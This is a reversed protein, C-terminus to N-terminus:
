EQELARAAAEADLRVSAPQLGEVSAELRVPGPEKGGTRLIVQCKGNFLHRQWNGDTCRDPEHSAPDGNGVGVISANGSVSFHVLEGADPVELGDKDVVSVNVVAADVGEARLVISVPRGTTQVSARLERGKKFAIAELKGPAYDVVWELHGNRPMNKKGLSRGNLFLEVNDANTNVWVVVPQGEKGKWNWHPAIHLVDKDTWWSQYYYYINKPFGCMDMIGFHSNIDPWSYPTPEGRYDFGSWVFGGMLWPREAAMTWWKEATSAWSPYTSDYDPVYGREKDAAYMGRSTVTSGVETGIFPQGPHERHYKDLEGLNYNSGRVPLVENVGHYISGSSVAATCLRTPDLQAALLVQNQAIRKGIDTTQEMFEENGLSWMFVSAHNRDRLILKRFEDEYEAGSNLLRTEDLVLLGLSDCADLEEPTPPNAGTRYANVGAEKLLRTRYYQLYDPLAAGVGAHDQHCCVGQIKLPRGNLFLGKDPSMSITRVGFLIKVSDIVAGGSKLLVVARYLYPDDPNWWRPHPLSITQRTTQKGDVSVEVPIPKAKALINGERDTLYSYVMVRAPRLGKNDLTADIHAWAGAASAETHVFIGGEPEIHLNSYINLWAHRYIGAGEYFWGEYQSADARVVIVNKENFHLFDTIDFSVGMYGSLNSGLYYGNIWVKSDRYIGDFGIVFRRGSDARDPTFTKRYWGISNEPFLPGVPKFGHAELDNDPKDVFPLEVVWDHPLRVSPWTSDNFGPSACTKGADGSKSFINALGYDFDQAPDRANGLHFKWGDDFNLRRRVVPRETSEPYVRILVVGHGAVTASYGDALWGIDKRLWLDRAKQKGTLGIDAWHVTMVATSDGRNLLGITKSGDAMQKVWIELDGAPGHRVPTNGLIDQDVDIVEPNTLIKLASPRIHRVDASVFLPASLLSWLSMQSQYETDNCGKAGLDNASAGKGYIGALLMDPDNWAGPHRYRAFSAQDDFCDIIGCKQDMHWQDRIDVGTRWVQARAEGGWGPGEYGAGLAYTMSRGSKELLRGMQVYLDKAREKPTYCLDYKLYDVGWSAWTHADQAEHDLTGPYGACTVAGPSSYIGLRFGKEHVYDSVPKMGDPFRVTDPFINGEKDRGGAWCDDMTIYQYGVDRLGYKVFADAMEELVTASISGETVNWSLFGMPPTLALTDGVAIRLIRTSTGANNRAELRVKYDGRNKPIGKIIGTERDFHLGEPLGEVTISLPRRGTVAVPYILPTGPRIGVALAGNIRPEPPQPVHRNTALDEPSWATRPRAGRYSFQADAWDVHVHGNGGSIELLLSKVGDIRVQCRRASDSATMIGSQWLIAGDGIVFFQVGDTAGVGGGAAGAGGRRGASRDDVGVMASFSRVQGDLDLCLRSDTRTHVGQRFGTGRISIGARQGVDRPRDIGQYIKSIDLADLSVSHIIQASSFDAVSAWVLILILRYLNGSLFGPRKVLLNKRM